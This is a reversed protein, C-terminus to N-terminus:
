RIKRSVIPRQARRRATTLTQGVILAPTALLAGVAGWLWAGFAVALFVPLAGVAIRSGILMPTVIQGEILNLMLLAAVPLLAVFFSPYHVFAVAFVIVNMIAPGLYPIFNLIAMGVGWLVPNPMGLAWFTVATAIGLMVNIISITLLYRAVKTRM